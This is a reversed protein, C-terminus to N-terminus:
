CLIQFLLQRVSTRPFFNTAGLKDCWTQGEQAGFPLCKAAPPWGSYKAKEMWPKGQHSTSRLFSCRPPRNPGKSIFTQAKLGLHGLHCTVLRSHKQWQTGGLCTMHQFLKEEASSSQLLSSCCIKAVPPLAASPAVM